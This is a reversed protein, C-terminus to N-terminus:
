KPDETCTMPTGDKGIVQITSVVSNGNSSNSVTTILFQLGFRCFPRVFVTTNSSTPIAVSPSTKGQGMAATGILASVLGIITKKNM